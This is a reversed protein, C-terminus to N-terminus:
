WTSTRTTSMGRSMRLRIPPTTVSTSRIRNKLLPAVNVGQGVDHDLDVDSWDRDIGAQQLVQFIPKRARYTDEESSSVSQANALNSATTNLRISQANMGTGAINIINSLSM